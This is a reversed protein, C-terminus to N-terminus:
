AIRVKNKGAEIAHVKTLRRRLLAADYKDPICSSGVYYEFRNIAHRITTKAEDLAARLRHNEDELNM